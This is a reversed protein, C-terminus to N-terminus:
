FRGGAGGGGSSGGGYGGFGGGGGGFGGGGGGRSLLMMFIGWLIQRGWPFPLLCCVIVIALIWVWMPVGKSKAAPAKPPPPAESFQTKREQAAAQAMALLVSRLGAEYNKAKLEPLLRETAFQHVKIDPLYGEAGYGTEIRWAREELAILILASEDKGKVGLGWTQVIKPALSALDDGDLRPYIAVASALGTESFIKQVLQALRTKAGSDLVGAGDWIGDVPRPPIPAGAARALPATLWLFALLGFVWSPLHSRSLRAM